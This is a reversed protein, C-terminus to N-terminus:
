VVPEMGREVMKRRYKELAAEYRAMAKIPKGPNIPKHPPMLPRIKAKIEQKAEEYRKKKYNYRALKWCYRKWTNKGADENPLKPENHFEEFPGVKVVKTWHNM